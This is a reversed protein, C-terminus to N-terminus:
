PLIDAFRFLPGTGIPGRRRSTQAPTEPIPPHFAECPSVFCSGPVQFVNNSRIRNGSRLAIGGAIGCAAV